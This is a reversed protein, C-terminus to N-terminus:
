GGPGGTRETVGAGALVALRAAEDLAARAAPTADFGLLLHDM